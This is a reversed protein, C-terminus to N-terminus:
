AKKESVNIVVCHYMVATLVEFFQQINLRATVVKGPYVCLIGYPWLGSKTLRRETKCSEFMTTM